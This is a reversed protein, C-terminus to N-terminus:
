DTTEFAEKAAHLRLVEVRRHQDESRQVLQDYDIGQLEPFAESDPIQRECRANMSRLLFCM